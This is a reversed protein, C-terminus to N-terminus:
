RALWLQHGLQLTVKQQNTCRQQLTNFHNPYRRVVYDSQLIVRTQELTSLVGHLTTLSVKFRDVASALMDYEAIAYFQSGNLALSPFMELWLALDSKPGITQLVPRDPDAEMETMRAHDAIQDVFEQEHWIVAVLQEREKQFVRTLNTKLFQQPINMCDLGLCIEPYFMKMNDLEQQLTLIAQYSHTATMDLEALLRVCLDYANDDTDTRKCQDIM